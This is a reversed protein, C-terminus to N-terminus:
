EKSTHRKHGKTGCKSCIHEFRCEEVTRSCGQESNWAYCARSAKSVTGTRKDFGGFAPKKVRMNQADYHLVSSGICESSFAELGMTETTKRIALDYEVHASDLFDNHRARHSIFNLHQLLARHDKISMEPIDLAWATTACVLEHCNLKRVDKRALTYRKLSWKSCRKRETSGSSSSSSTHRHRREERSRRRSRGYTSYGGGAAELPRERVPLEFRQDEMVGVTVTNMRRERKKDSDRLESRQLCKERGELLKDRTCELEAIENELRLEEIQRM